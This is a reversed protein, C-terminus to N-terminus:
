KGHRAIFAPVGEPGAQVFGALAQPDHAMDQALWLAIPLAGWKRAFPGASLGELRAGEQEPTAVALAQLRQKLVPVLRQLAERAAPSPVGGAPLWKGSLSYYNGLGENFLDWWARRLPTDAHYPHLLLRRRAMLHTYEHSLIRQVRGASDAASPDGYAKVWDALDLCITSDGATFGDNGGQNGLLITVRRPPAVGPFPQDLAPLRARWAGAQAAILGAWAQEAASLPRRLRAQAAAAGAAHRPRIADAWAESMAGDAGLGYEIVVPPLHAAFATPPVGLALVLAAGALLARVM